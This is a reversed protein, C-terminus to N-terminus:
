LSSHAVIYYQTASGPKASTANPLPQQQQDGCNTANASTLMVAFLSCTLELTNNKGPGANVDHYAQVSDVIGYTIYLVPPWVEAACTLNSFQPTYGEPTKPPTPPMPPTTPGTPGAPQVPPLNPPPPPRSLCIDCFLLDLVFCLIQLFATADTLYLSFASFLSRMISSAPEQVVTSGFATWRYKHRLEAYGNKKKGRDNRKVRWGNVREVLWGNIEVMGNLGIGTVNLRVAWM